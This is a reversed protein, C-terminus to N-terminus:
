NGTGGAGTGGTGGTAGTPDETECEVTDVVVTLTGTSLDAPTFNDRVLKYGNDTRSWGFYRYGASPTM